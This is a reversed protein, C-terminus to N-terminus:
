GNHRSGKEFRPNINTDITYNKEATMSSELREKMKQRRVLTEMQDGFFKRDEATKSSLLGNQIVQRVVGTGGYDDKFEKLWLKCCEPCELFQKSDIEPRVPDFMCKELHDRAMDRDDLLLLKALGLYGDEKYTFVKIMERSVSMAGDYYWTSRISGKLHIEILIYYWQYLTKYLGLYWNERNSNWLIEAYSRCRDPDELHTSVGLIDEYLLLLDPLKGLAYECLTYADEYDAKQLCIQIMQHCSYGNGSIKGQVICCVFERLRRPNEQLRNIADDISYPLEENQNLEWRTPSNIKLYLSDPLLGNNKIYRDQEEKGM